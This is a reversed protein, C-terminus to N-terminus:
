AIGELELNRSRSPAAKAGAKEVIIHAALASGSIYADELRDGRCWDGCVALGLDPDHLFDRGLPRRTHAVRWRHGQIWAVEPLSRGMAGALDRLLTYAAAQPDSDLHARSFPRSGHLVWAEDTSEAATARRAQKM